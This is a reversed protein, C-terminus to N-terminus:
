PLNSYLGHNKVGHASRITDDVFDTSSLEDFYTHVAFELLLCIVSKTERIKKLAVKKISCNNM